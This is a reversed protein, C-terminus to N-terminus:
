HDPNLANRLQEILKGAHAPPKIRVAGIVYNGSQEFLVGGYLPDVATLTKVDKTGTLHVDKGAEKLYSVYSEFAKGATSRSDEMVIIIQVGKGDLVADATIGRRFFPYGLLSRSIYRESKEVIGTQRLLKVERPRDSTGPLNQAITQGCMLFIEQKLNTTGTAQLRVFYKDQYFMLQTPSVFGEAGIDMADADARRYSSYIGFADLLSGMTYVDAVLWLDPNKKSVYTATALIKFGYPFYLEAEGNIHEFLSESDYLVVKEKMTWDTACERAPLVNEISSDTAFVSVGSCPILIFVFAIAIFIGQKQM